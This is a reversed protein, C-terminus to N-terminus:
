ALTLTVSSNLTLTSDSNSGRSASPDHEAVTSLIMDGTKLGGPGGGAAEAYNIVSRSRRSGEVLVQDPNPNPNPDPNPNPM